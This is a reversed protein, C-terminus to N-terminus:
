LNVRNQEEGNKLMISVEMTVMAVLKPLKPFSPFVHRYVVRNYDEVFKCILQKIELMRRLSIVEMDCVMSGMKKLDQAEYKKHIEDM